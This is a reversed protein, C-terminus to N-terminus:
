RLLPLHTEHSQTELWRYLKEPWRISAECSYGRLLSFYIAQDVLPIEAQHDHINLKAETVTLLAEVHQVTTPTSELLEAFNLEPTQKKAIWAQRSAATAFEPLDLEPWRPYGIRILTPFARQQWDQTAQRPQRPENSQAISLFYAAIDDSEAMISGDDKILIPVMKKGILGTPTKEDHYDVIVEELTIGLRNAIYQVRACFPCHTYIYLKM